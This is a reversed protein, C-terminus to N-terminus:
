NFPYFDQNWYLVKQCNLIKTSKQLHTPNPDQLLFNSGGGVGTNETTNIGLFFNTQEEKDWRRSGKMRQGTTEHTEM